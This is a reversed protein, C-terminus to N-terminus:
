IRMMKKWNDLAQKNYIGKEHHTRCPFETCQFCCRVAKKSACIYIACEKSHPDKLCGPCKVKFVPCFGCYIGCVSVLELKLRSLSNSEELYIHLDNSIQLFEAKNNEGPYALTPM